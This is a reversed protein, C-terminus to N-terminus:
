DDKNKKKKLKDLHFEYFEGSKKKKFIKKSTSWKKLSEKSNTVVSGRNWARARQGRPVYSGLEGVLSRVWVGQVPIRLGM